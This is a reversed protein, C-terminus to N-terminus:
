DWWDKPGKHDKHVGTEKIEKTEKLDPTEKTEKRERIVKRELYVVVVRKDRPGKPDM